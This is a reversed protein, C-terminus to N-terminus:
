KKFYYCRMNTKDSRDTVQLDQNEEILFEGSQKYTTKFRKQRRENLTFSENAFRVDGFTLDYRIILQTPTIQDFASAYSNIVRVGEYAPATHLVLPGHSSPTIQKIYLVAGIPNHPKEYFYCRGSITQHMLNSIQPRVGKTFHEALGDFYSRNEALEKARLDKPGLNSAFSNAGASLVLFSFILIKM